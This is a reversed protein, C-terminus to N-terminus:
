IHGGGGGGGFFFLAVAQRKIWLAERLGGPRAASWAFNQVTSRIKEGFTNLFCSPISATNSASKSVIKRGTPDNKSYKEDVPPVKPSGHAWKPTSFHSPAGFMGWSQGLLRWGPFLSVRQSVKQLEKKFINTYNALFYCNQFLYSKKKSKKTVRLVGLSPSM